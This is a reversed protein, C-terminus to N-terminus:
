IQAKFVAQSVMGVLGVDGSIDSKPDLPWVCCKQSSWGDETCPLKSFLASLCAFAGTYKWSQGHYRQFDVVFSTQKRIGSQERQICTPYVCISRDLGSVIVRWMEFDDFSLSSIM